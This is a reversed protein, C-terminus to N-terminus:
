ENEDEEFREMRPAYDKKKKIVKDLVIAIVIGTILAGVFLGFLALEQLKHGIAIAIGVLLVPIGYVIFAANLVFRNGMVVAVKDGVKANLDNQVDVYVSANDKHKMCMGCKECASKRSFVVRATNNKNIKEVTGIEKM